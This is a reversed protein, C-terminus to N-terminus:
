TDLSFTLLVMAKTYILLSLLYDGASRLDALGIDMTVDMTLAPNHHKM